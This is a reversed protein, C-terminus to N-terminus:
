LELEQSNNYWTHCTGEISVMCPGYPDSPHCKKRFMKCEAPLLEGLMIRHCQCGPPNSRSPYPPTCDLRKAADLHSYAEKLVFATDDVSDIGRWIGPVRDFVEEMNSLAAPNGHENVIRSYANVVESRGTRISRLLELIASLIDVPTFGAVVCPLRYKTEMYDYVHIGTITAAHGALLFGQLSSKDHVEMLLEFVPPIYRNAMLFLLNDPVGHKIMGAVGAATTEFGISFFVFTEDSNNMAIKVADLPGYIMQVSGGNRRADVLSEKTAPVRLMDGFTLVTIGKRYSLTIAQDIAEVPCICVPCGPGPIIQLTKPLLQRLGFKVIEHEHTGCVHMLRLKGMDSALSEINEALGAVLRRDEYRKLTENVDM